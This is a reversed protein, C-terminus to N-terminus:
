KHGIHDLAVEIIQNVHEDDLSYFVNKGDRRFKVLKSARLSNLQHSIASKTMNLEVALDCVCLEAGDLAWLIKMRTPDGLIKFFDSLDSIQNESPMNNKSKEVAESHVTESECIFDKEM